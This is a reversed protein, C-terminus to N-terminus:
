VVDYVADVDAVHRHVPCLGQGPDPDTQGQDNQHGGKCGKHGGAAGGPGGDAHATPIVVARLLDQAAAKGQLQDDGGHEGGNQQQPTLVQQQEEAGAFVGDSVGRGIHADVGHACGEDLQGQPQVGEDGGLAEGGHPHLGYEDACHAVDNQVGDEDETQM